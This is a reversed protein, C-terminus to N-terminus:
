YKQWNKVLNAQFYDLIEDFYTQFNMMYRGFGRWFLGSHEDIIARFRM